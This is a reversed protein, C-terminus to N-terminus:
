KYCRQFNPFAPFFQRKGSRSHEPSVPIIATTNLLKSIKYHVVFSRCACHWRQIILSRRLCVYVKFRSGLKLDVFVIWFRYGYICVCMKWLTPGKNLISLFVGVYLQSMSNDDLLKDSKNIGSLSFIDFEFLFSSFSFSLFKKKKLSVFHRIVFVLPLHCCIPVFLGIIEWGSPLPWM